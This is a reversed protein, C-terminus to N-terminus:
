EHVTMYNFMIYIFSVKMLGPYEHAPMCAYIRHGSVVEPAESYTVCPFRASSFAEPNDVQWYFQEGKIVQVCVTMYVCTFIVGEEVGRLIKVM